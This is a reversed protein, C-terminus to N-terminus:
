TQRSKPVIAESSRHPSPPCEEPRNDSAGNSCHRYYYCQDQDVRARRWLCGRRGRRGNRGTCARWSGLRGWHHNRFSGARGREGIECIQVRGPFEALQYVRTRDLYGSRNVGLADQEITVNTVWSSKRCILQLMVSAPELGSNSKPGLKRLLEFRAYYQNAIPASDLSETDAAKPWFSDIDIYCPDM